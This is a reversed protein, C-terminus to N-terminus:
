EWGDFEKPEEWEDGDEDEDLGMVAWDKITRLSVFMDERVARYGFGVGGSVVTGEGTEEDVRRRKLVQSRIVEGGAAAKIRCLENGVVWWVLKRQKKVGDWESYERWYRYAFSAKLEQWERNKLRGSEDRRAYAKLLSDQEVC